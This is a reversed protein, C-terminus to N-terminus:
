LKTGNNGVEYTFDGIDYLKTKDSDQWYILIKSDDHKFRGWCGMMMNGKSDYGLAKQAYKPTDKIPCPEETIIIKGGGENKLWAFDGAAVATTAAFLLAIAAKIKM